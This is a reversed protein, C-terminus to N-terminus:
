PHRAALGQIEQRATPLRDRVERARTTLEELFQPARDQLPRLTAFEQTHEDLTRRAQGTLEVIRSLMGRRVDDPEPDDDLQQRLSLAETAAARAQELVERFAETRQRGFQAEAFALEEEASRVTNDMAVLAEASAR